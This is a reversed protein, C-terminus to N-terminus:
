VYGIREWSLCAPPQQQRTSTSRKWDWM